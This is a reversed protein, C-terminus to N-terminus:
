LYYLESENSRNVLKPKSVVKNKSIEKVTDRNLGGTVTRFFSKNSIKLKQTINKISPHYAFDQIIKDHNECINGNSKLSWEYLNLSEAIIQFYISFVDAVLIEDNEILM